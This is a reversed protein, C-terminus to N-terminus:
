LTRLVPNGSFSSVGKTIYTTTEFGKVM